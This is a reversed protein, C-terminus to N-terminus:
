FIILYHGFICLGEPHREGSQTADNEWGNVFPIIIYLIHYQVKLGLPLKNFSLITFIYRQLGM